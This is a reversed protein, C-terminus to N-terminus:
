RGSGLAAPIRLRHAHCLAAALADTEHETAPQELGLLRSVMVAVQQKDARGYGCVATKVVAVPYEAVSVGAAACAALAAGRAHALAIVGRPDPGQYVEEVAAHCAASTAAVEAVAAHIAALREAYPQRPKTRVVGSGRYSVSGQEVSIIGYGTAAIGPDLGLIVV